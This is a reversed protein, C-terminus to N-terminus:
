SVWDTTRIDLYGSEHIMSVALQHDIQKASWACIAMKMEDTSAKQTLREIKRTIPLVDATVYTVEGEGKSPALSSKCRGTRKEAMDDQVPIVYDAVELERQDHQAAEKQELIRHHGEVDEADDQGQAAYM